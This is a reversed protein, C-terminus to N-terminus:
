IVFLDADVDHAGRFRKRSAREYVVLLRDRGDTSPVVVIGEPYDSGQGTPLDMVHHLDEPRMRREVDPRAGGVWRYLRVPGHVSSVPGALVLLDNGQRCLARIGLGGLKLFHKRYLKKGRGFRALRLLSADHRSPRPEIEVIAAWQNFVPGRLGLLVREGIVALGEIDFGNEKGPPEMAHRFHEDRRLARTLANGKAGVELHAARRKDGGRGARRALTWTGQAQVIPIRALLCRNDQRAVKALTKAIKRPSAGDDPMEREAAHSGVIWLYGGAIDLDEVDAEDGMGGPLRLFKELAFTVHAAFTPERGRIRDLREVSLTEDSAVWLTDVLGAVGSLGDRFQKGSRMRDTAPDFRLHVKM